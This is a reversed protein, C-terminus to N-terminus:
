PLSASIAQGRQQQGNGVWAPRASRIAELHQRKSVAHRAAQAVPVVGAWPYRPPYWGSPYWNVARGNAEGTLRVTAARQSSVVTSVQHRPVPASAQRDGPGPRVPRLSDAGLYASLASLKGTVMAEAVMTGAQIIQMGSMAAERRVASRVEAKRVLVGARALIGGWHTTNTVLTLGGGDPDLGVM